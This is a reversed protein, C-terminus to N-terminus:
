CLSKQFKVSERYSMVADGHMIKCVCLANMSVVSNESLYTDVYVAPPSGRLILSFLSTCFYSFDIRVMIACIANEAQELNVAVHIFM